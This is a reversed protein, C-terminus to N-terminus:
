ISLSPSFKGSIGRKGDLAYFSRDCFLAFAQFAWALRSGLNKGTIRWSGGFSSSLFNSSHRNLVTNPLREEKTSRLLAARKFM